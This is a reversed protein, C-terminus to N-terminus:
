GSPEKSDFYPRSAAKRNPKTYVEDTAVLNRSAGGRDNPKSFASKLFDFLFFNRSFLWEKWEASIIRVINSLNPKKYQKREQITVLGMLSAERITDRALTLCVGARAAIESLYLICMHKRRVEDAVIKLVAQQGITFRRALMSPLPRMSCLMKRREQSAERDPSRPIPKKPPFWSKFGAAKSAAALTPMRGSFTDLERVAKQKLHLFASLMQYDDDTLLKEVWDKSVRALSEGIRSLSKIAQFEEILMLAYSM